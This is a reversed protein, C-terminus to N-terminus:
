RRSLPVAVDAKDLQYHNRTLLPLAPALVSCIWLASHGSEGTGGIWVYELCVKGGQPLDSFRHILSPDLLGREQEQTGYCPPLTYKESM